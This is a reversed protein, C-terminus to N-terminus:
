TLRLSKIILITMFIIFFIAINRGLKSGYNEKWKHGVFISIIFLIMSVVMVPFRVGIVMLINEGLSKKGVYTFSFMIAFISILLSLTGIGLNRTNSRNIKRM